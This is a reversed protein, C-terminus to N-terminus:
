CGRCGRKETRCSREQLPCWGINQRLPRRVPLPVQLLVWSKCRERFRIELGAWENVTLVRQGRCADPSLQSVTKCAKSPLRRALEQRKAAAQGLLGRLNIEFGGPMLCAAHQRLGALQSKFVQSMERVVRMAEAFSAGGHQAVDHVFKQCRLNGVDLREQM